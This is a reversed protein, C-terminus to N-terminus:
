YQCCPLSQLPEVAGHLVLLWMLCFPFNVQERRFHTHSLDLRALRTCKALSSLFGNALYCDAGVANGIDFDALRLVTLQPLHQLVMLLPHANRAHRVQVWGVM